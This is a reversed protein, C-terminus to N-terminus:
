WEKETYMLIALEDGLGKSMDEEAKRVESVPDQERVRAIALWEESKRKYEKLSAEETKTLNKLRLRQEIVDIRVELLKIYGQGLNM